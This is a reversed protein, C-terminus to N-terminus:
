AKANRYSATEPFPRDLFRRLVNETVRSVSNDAGNWMLSTAWAISGASWVAGGGETTFAVMDARVDPNQNGDLARTTTIFEEGSLLGGADVGESTALIVSNSPSGLDADWRDIELGVCGGGRYGFDGIVDSELGTFVFAFQGKDHGKQRRFWCSRVFLTSSFGTGVLRQPARGHSRWLGGPEATFNLTHEGPEGEWTRVGSIGRRNEIIGPHAESWAIRWYFGNGGLYMHRGGARQYGDIADWMRTSYYEPHSGTILVRYPELLERGHRHLDEDTAVDYDYGKTELWKLVHTDNVYNFTYLGPRINLMPRRSGAYVVGSGDSHTDYLSLGLERHENLYLEDESLVMPAEYLNETNASDFKIHTNAYALYTATPALFLVKSGPKGAESSVFFPVDSEVGPATLRAVYYGPRTGAPVTLTCNTDWACDTMDDDHFHIAAYHERRIRWHEASGDWHQGTAGRMPTNHLVLAGSGPDMGPVTAEGQDQSFDWGALLNGGATMIRPSEIKGNYHNRTSIREGDRDDPEASFLLPTMQGPWDFGAIDTAVSQHAAGRSGPHVHSLTLCLTEAVVRLEVKHWYRLELPDECTVTGAGATAALRGHPTLRLSIGGFSFVVQPQKTKLTPFISLSLVFGEDPGTVPVTEAQAWSGSNIDQCGVSLAKAHGWDQREFCAGPGGPDIDACVVRYTSLDCSRPGNSSIKIEIIGGAHVVWPQAYGILGTTSKM